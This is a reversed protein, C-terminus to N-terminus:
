EYRLAVMPDVRTARRAPLVTALLSAAVLLVLTVLFTLPDSASVGFLLGGLLRAVVLAGAVGVLVGVAVLRMAQGVVLTLVDRAQAGLAMRIGIEKTRHSVAYTMVSYMGMTALVLAVIGLIVGLDAALKALFLAFDLNSAGALSEMQPIRADLATVETRVGELISPLDRDSMARVLMTRMTWSGDRLSPIHGPLFIWPKADEFLEEYKGDRAVGVVQLLPADDDGFRFRKGIADQERGFLRRALEANVIVTSPTGEHESAEFDRGAVLETGITQFYRPYIVSYPIPKWENPRPPADGERVAPGNFLPVNVLPLGLSSSVSQTGPMREIRQTLEDFFTRVQAEDYDFLGPDVLVTVLRQTRFGPDLSALRELSRVLLGGAVVVVISVALQGIVLLQRM